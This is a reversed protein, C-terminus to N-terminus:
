PTHNNMEKAAERLKPHQIEKPPTPDHMLFKEAWLMKCGDACIPDPCSCTNLSM